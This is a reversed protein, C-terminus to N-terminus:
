DGDNRGSGGSLSDDTEDALNNPARPSIRLLWVVPWLFGGPPLSDPALEAASRLIAVAPAIPFLWAVVIRAIRGARDITPDRVVAWTALASLYFALVGLLILASLM